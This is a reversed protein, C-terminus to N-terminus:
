DSVKHQNPHPPLHKSTVNTANTVPAEQESVKHQNPHSPLHKSTVNTANTLPAEQYSGM